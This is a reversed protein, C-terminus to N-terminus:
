EATCASERCSARGIKVRGNTFVRRRQWLGVDKHRQTLKRRRRGEERRQAKAHSMKRGQERKMGVASARNFSRDASCVDSSWDSIRVEYAKKQKIFFICKRSGVYVMM